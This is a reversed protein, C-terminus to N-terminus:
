AMSYAEALSAWKTSKPVYLWPWPDDGRTAHWIARDLSTRRVYLSSRGVGDGWDLLLRNSLLAWRRRPDDQITRALMPNRHLYCLSGHLMRSLWPRAALGIIWPGLLCTGMGSLMRQPTDAAPGADSHTVRLQPDITGERSDWTTFDNVAAAGTYVGSCDQDWSSDYATQVQAALGTWDTTGSSGTTPQAVNDGADTTTQAPRGSNWTVTTEVWVRTTNREFRVTGGDSATTGALELRITAVDIVQSAGISSLDWRLLLLTGPSTKVKGMRNSTDTGFNTTPLAERVDTDVLSNINTQAM